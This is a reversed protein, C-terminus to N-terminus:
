KDVKHNMMQLSDEDESFLNARIDELLMRRAIRNEPDSNDDVNDGIVPVSTCLADDDRSSQCVRTHSQLVLNEMMSKIKQEDSSGKGVSHQGDDVSDSPSSTNDAPMRKTTRKLSNRQKEKANGTKKKAPTSQIKQKKTDESSEMSDSSSSDSQAEKVTRKSNLNRRERLKIRKQRKTASDCCEGKLFDNETDPLCAPRKRSSKEPLICKEKEGGPVGNTNKEDESYDCSDGKGRLKEVSDSLEKKMKPLCDKKRKRKKERYTADRKSEKIGKLFHGTEEGKPFKKPADSSSQQQQERTVTTKKGKAATKKWTQKNYGLSEDSEEKKPFKDTADFSGRQITKCTKIKLHKNNERPKAFIKDQPTNVNWKPGSPKVADNSSIYLQRKYVTRGLEVMSKYRKVSDDAGTFNEEWEGDSDDSIGQLTTVKKKRKTAVAIKSQMEDESSDCDKENSVTRKIVKDSGPDSMIKIERKFESDCHSSKTYNQCTGKSVISCKTSKGKKIGFDSGSTSSRWKRKGNTDKGTQIKNIVQMENIGNDSSSHSRLSVETLVSQIEDSDTSQDIMRTQKAKPVKHPKPNDIATVSSNQMAKRRTLISLHKKEQITENSEEDSNSKINGRSDKSPFNLKLDSRELKPKTGSKSDERFDTSSQVQTVTELSDFIDEPVSSSTATDIDLDEYTNTPKHQPGDKRSPRKYESSENEQQGKVTFHKSDMMKETQTTDLKLFYQNKTAWSNEGKKLKPKSYVETIKLDKTNKEKHVAHLAQIESNLDDELALHAKKM